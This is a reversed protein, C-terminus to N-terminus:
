AAAELARAQMVTEVQVVFDEGEPRSGRVVGLCGYERAELLVLVGPDVALTSAVDIAGQTDSVVIRVAQTTLAADAGIAQMRVRGAGGLDNNVCDLAVELRVGGDEERRDTLRAALPRGGQPTVWVGAGAAPGTATRLRAVGESFEVLTQHRPQGDEVWDVRAAGDLKPAAVKPEKTTGLSWFPTSSGTSERAQGGGDDKRAGWSLLKSLKM